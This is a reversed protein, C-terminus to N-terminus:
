SSDKREREIQEQSKRLKLMHTTSDVFNFLHMDKYDKDSKRLSM